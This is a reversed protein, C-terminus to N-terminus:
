TWQAAEPGVKSSPAKRLFWSELQSPLIDITTPRGHPCNWPHECQFLRRTLHLAEESTIPDGARISSHCAESAISEFLLEDWAVPLKLEPTAEEKELHSEWGHLAREVLSKLRSSLSRNGWDSPISRFLLCDKGFVDAEFGIARLSSIFLEFSQESEFRHADLKVTEPFLLAQTQIQRKEFQTRLNEYRIREDAAHQDILVLKDNEEFVLYTHFLIGVWRGPLFAPERATQFSTPEQTPVPIQHAAQPLNFATPEAATWSPSHASARNGSEWAQPAPKQALTLQAVLEHILQFIKGPNLFRIETKSPHVNVDLEDPPLEVFLALAPFQGPLLLQRFPQLLAQQLLRDKVSRRNVVQLLRRAQPQNLGPIWYLRAQIGDRSVAASRTAGSRKEASDSLIRSVRTAEDSAPLNLIEKEDSWLEFRTQPHALALREMWERAQSVEAGKSKLFKLRAPLPAFLGTARIRTGNSSGLFTGHTLPQPPSTEGDWFFAEKAEAARTLISLRSVAAISPLAEGRFGLSRLQDLDEISRLKSTAHRRICLALDEPPMGHGNDTVEILSKGGDELHVSIQTAGADLANEVLEKVVSAPREIVEGAAIKEATLPDLVRIRTGASM